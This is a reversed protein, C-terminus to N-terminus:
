LWGEDRARMIAMTRNSVGLRGYVRALLRFMMRESYGAREALRGVTSGGALQRLWELETDTLPRAPAPEGPGGEAARGAAMARLVEFPVLSRGTMAADVAECVAAHTANRPLAGIAGSIVARAWGGVDDVALMVILLVDPRAAVIEDLLRWDPEGAIGLLVMAAGPSRVWGLIDDPAEVPHGADALTVTVGRVFMPVPDIVMIRVTM